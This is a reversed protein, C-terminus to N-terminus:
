IEVQETSNTQLILAENKLWKYLKVDKKSFLMQTKHLNRLLETRQNFCRIILDMVENQLKPSKACAFIQILRHIAPAKDVGLQLISDLDCIEPEYQCIIRFKAEELNVEEIEQKKQKKFINLAKRM